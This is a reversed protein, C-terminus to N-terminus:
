LDNYNYKWDEKKVKRDWTTKKNLPNQEVITVRCLYKCKQYEVSIKGTSSLRFWRQGPSCSFETFIWQKIIFLNIGFRKIYCYITETLQKHIFLSWFAFQDSPKFGKKRRNLLRNYNKDEFAEQFLYFIKLKKWTFLM